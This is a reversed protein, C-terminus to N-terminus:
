SFVKTCVHGRALRERLRSKNVELVRHEAIILRNIRLAFRHIAHEFFTKLEGCARRVSAAQTKRVRNHARNPRNLRQQQQSDGDFKSYEFNGYARAFGRAGIEVQYVTAATIKLSARFCRPSKCDYFRRVFRRWFARRLVRFTTRGAGFNEPNELARRTVPFFRHLRQQAVVRLEAVDHTILDAVFQHHMQNTMGIVDFM